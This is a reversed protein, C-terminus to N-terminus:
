HKKSTKWWFEDQIENCIENAFHQIDKWESLQIFDEIKCQPRKQVIDHYFREVMDHLLSISALYRRREERLEEAKEILTESDELIFGIDEEFEGVEPGKGDVWMRKQLCPDRLLRLGNYVFSDFVDELEFEQM